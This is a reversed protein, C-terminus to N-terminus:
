PQLETVRRAIAQAFQAPASCDLALFLLPEILELEMILLTQERAVVDVRAYLCPDPAMALANAAESVIWDDPNVLTQSGGYESQVRFDGPTPRKLVAHSYQGDFFILSYEGFSRIEPVFEQILVPGQALAAEFKAQGAVASDATVSFTLWASASVVPKVVAESWGERDLLSTLPVVKDVVLTRPIRCGRSELELLYRKDMNWAVTRSPNWVIPLRSVWSRFESPKRHYNWCSRVVVPAIERPSDDDWPLAITEIGLDTLERAALADDSNVARAGSYTAFFVSKM